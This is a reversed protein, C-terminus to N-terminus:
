LRQMQLRKQKFPEELSFLSFTETFWKSAGTSDAPSQEVSEVVRSCVRSFFRRCVALSICNRDLTGTFTKVQFQTDSVWGTCRRPM